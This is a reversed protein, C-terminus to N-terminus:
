PNFIGNGLREKRAYRAPYLDALQALSKKIWENYIGNTAIREVNAQQLNIAKEEFPFAQQQLLIKYQTRERGALEAPIPSNLLAQSFDYFLDGTLYTVATSVKGIGYKAADQYAALVDELRAKKTKLTDALPPVLKVQEYARREDAALALTAQAALTRSHASRAPGASADTAILRHRWRDAAARNGAEVNLELLQQQAEIIVDFPPAFQNLLARYAAMAAARDGIDVYLRAAQLAAARRTAVDVSWQNRIRAFEVAAAAKDGQKLHLAALQRTAKPALEHDPYSQRFRKLLRIAQDIAQVRISAAAADYLAVARIDEAVGAPVAELVRLYEKTAAKDDGSRALAKGQQYIAVALQQLTQERKGQTNELLWRLATEADAYQEAELTAAALIRWANALQAKDAAPRHAILKNAISKAVELQGAKYRGEALVALAATAQPHRPYQKAFRLTAAKVADSTAVQTGAAKRLALVAAYAAEASHEGEPLEYAAHQYAQAAARYQGAELLTEGRLFALETARENHPFISLYKGYWDAAAAYDAAEGTEQAGAHLSSTIADLYDVLRQRVEPIELPNKGYWSQQEIGYRIVYDQKAKVVAAAFGGAALAAISQVEMRKAQPHKPNRSAFAQALQSADTYRQKDLYHEFLAHVLIYEYQSANADAVFESPTYQQGLIAFNLTMNRLADRALEQQGGAITDFRATGDDAIGGAGLLTQLVHLEDRLAAKNRSLKYYTWGRKYRAQLAFASDPANEILWSYDQAAPGYNGYLFRLEARRFRAEPMLSYNPYNRILRTLAVIGAAVDGALDAAHATQYLLDAARDSFTLASSLKQYINMARRAAPAPNKSQTAIALEVDALHRLIQYRKTANATIELLARYNARMEKLTAPDPASKQAEISREQLNALTTPEDDAWATIPLMMAAALAPVILRHTM